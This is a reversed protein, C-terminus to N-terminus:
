CRRSSINQFFREQGDSDINRHLPRIHSISETRQVKHKFFSRIADAVTTSVKIFDEDTLVNDHLMGNARDLQRLLYSLDAASVTGINPITIKEM